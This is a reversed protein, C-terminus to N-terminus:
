GYATISAIRSEGGIGAVRVAPERICGNKRRAFKFRRSRLGPLCGSCFSMYFLHTVKRRALVGEITKREGTCVGIKFELM